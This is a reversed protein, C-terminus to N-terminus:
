ASNQLMHRLTAVLWLALIDTALFLFIVKSNLALGAIALIIAGVGLVTAVTNWSNKEPVGASGVFICTGLGLVFLVLTGMRWSTLLPWDLQKLMAYVVVGGVGVLLTAILDRWTVSM